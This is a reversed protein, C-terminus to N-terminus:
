VTLRIYMRPLVRPLERIDQLIVFRSGPFMLEMDARSNEMTSIGFTHIGMRKNEECAVRIDYQAYRTAPDYGSDMPRGDTILIILRQKAEVRALRGGAHRLAVGIRTSARPRAKLISGIAGSDWRDDFDKYVYFECNERGQGSFGCISFRDGLSDLGQGLILASHKEVELIQHDEVDGGTSGSVDMLVLVALDRRNIQPREYFRIKPSPEHRRETLYEVLLDPNIMDGDRLYKEKHVVAPKLHEFVRRTRSVQDALEPPM